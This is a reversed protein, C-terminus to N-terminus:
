VPGELFRPVERTEGDLLLKGAGYEDRLWLYNLALAEEDMRQSLDMERPPIRNALKTMSWTLFQRISGGSYPYDRSENELARVVEIASRGRYKKGGIRFIM